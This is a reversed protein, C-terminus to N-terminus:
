IRLRFLVSKFVWHSYDNLLILFSLSTSEVRQPLDQTNFRAILSRDYLLIFATEVVSTVAKLERLTRDLLRM